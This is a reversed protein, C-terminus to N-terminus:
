HLGSRRSTHTHYLKAKLLVPIMSESKTNLTTWNTALLTAGSTNSNNSESRSGDNHNNHISCLSAM